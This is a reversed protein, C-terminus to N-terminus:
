RRGRGSHKGGNYPSHRHGSHRHPKGDVTVSVLPDSDGGSSALGQRQMGASAEDSASHPIELGLMEFVEPDYGHLNHLGPPQRPAATAPPSDPAPAPAAAPVGVHEARPGATGSDHSVEVRPQLDNTRPSQSYLAAQKAERRRQKKRFRQASRVARLTALLQVPDNAEDPMNPAPSFLVKPKAAPTNRAVASLVKGAVAAAVAAVTGRPANKGIAAEVAAAVLIAGDAVTLSMFDLLPPASSFELPIPTGCLQLLIRRSSM